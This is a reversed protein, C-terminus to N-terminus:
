AYLLGKLYNNLFNEALAKSSVSNVTSLKGTAGLIAIGHLGAWLVRSANHRGRNTEISTALCKEIIEFIKFLIENYWDPLEDNQLQHEFLASWKNYNGESYELYIQAIDRISDISYNQEIRSEINSLIEQLTLFNLHLIFGDFSEFLQYFTGVTYGIEATVRRTSLKSLGDTELIKYGAEMAMNKLENRTHDYRRAM